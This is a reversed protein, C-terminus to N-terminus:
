EDELAVGLEWAQSKVFSIYASLEATNMKSTRELPRKNEDEGGYKCLLFEHLEEVRWGRMAESASLIRPYLFGFLYAFQEPVAKRRFLNVDLRFTQDLPLENIYVSARLVEERRRDPHAHLLFTTM